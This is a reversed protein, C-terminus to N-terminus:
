EWPPALYAPLGAVPDPLPWLSAAAGATAHEAHEVLSFGAGVLDGCEALPIEIRVVHERAPRYVDIRAEIGDTGIGVLEVPEESYAYWASADVALAYLLGAYQELPPSELGPTWFDQVGSSVASEVPGFKQLAELLAGLGVEPDPTLVARRGTPWQVEVEPREGVLGVHRLVLGQSVNARQIAALDIVLPQWWEVHPHSRAPRRPQRVMM